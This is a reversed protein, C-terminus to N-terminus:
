GVLIRCKWHSCIQSHSGTADEGGGVLLALADLSIEVVPRLVAQDRQADAKRKGTLHELLVRRHGGLQDRRQALVHLRGQLLNAQQRLADIGRHQSIVTQGSRQSCGRPDAGRRGGHARVANAAIGLVDLRRDVEGAGFRQLVGGLMRRSRRDGDKQVPSSSRNVTRSSPWPKESASAVELIPRALM